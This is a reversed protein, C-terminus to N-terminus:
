ANHRLSLGSTRDFLVVKEPNWSFRVAEDIALNHRASTAAARLCRQRAAHRNEGGGHNEVDHVQADVPAAPDLYMDEPRIGFTVPHGEAGGNGKGAFPLTFGAETVAQGGSISGDFLNM